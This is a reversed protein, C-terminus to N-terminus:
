TSLTIAAMFPLSLPRNASAIGFAIALFIANRNPVVTTKITEEAYPVDM